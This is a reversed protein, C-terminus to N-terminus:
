EFLAEGIKVFSHLIVLAKIDIKVGSKLIEEAMEKSVLLTEINEDEELYEDTVTGKCTCYILAASEETMGPSLYAGRMSMKENIELLMLGTEEKLERAVTKEIAEDFDILGAPLEYVYDNLPVRFQKIMVLAGSEKHLAVIIVADTKEEAQEFYQKKLTAYDKRSAIIWHKMKGRKNEYEADYLSLFKTEALCTLNKINNKDM